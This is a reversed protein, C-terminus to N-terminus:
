LGIALGLAGRASIQHDFSFVGGGVEVAVRSAVPVILGLDFHVDTGKNGFFLGPRSVIVVDAAGTTDDHTIIYTHPVTVDVGTRVQGGFAVRAAGIGLAIVARSRPPARLLLHASVLSDRSPTAATEGGVDLGLRGRGFTVRGGGIPATAASADRVVGGWAEAIVTVKHQWQAKLAPDPADGDRYMVLPNPLLEVGVMIGLALEHDAAVNTSDSRSYFLSAVLGALITLGAVGGVTSRGVNGYAPSSSSTTTCVVDGWSDVECTTTSDARAPRSVAALMLVGVTVVAVGRM